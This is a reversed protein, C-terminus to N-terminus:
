EVKGYFELQVLNLATVRDPALHIRRTRMLNHFINYRRDRKAKEADNKRTIRVARIPGLFIAVITAILVLTNILDRLQFCRFGNTCDMTM